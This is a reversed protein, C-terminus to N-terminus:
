KHTHLKALKAPISDEERELGQVKPMVNDFDNPRKVAYMLESPTYVLVTGSAVTNNISEEIQPLLEAWKKHSSHCYIHCFKSTEQM